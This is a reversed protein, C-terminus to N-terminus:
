GVVYLSFLPYNVLWKDFYTLGLHSDFTQSVVYKNWCLTILLCVFMRVLYLFLKDNDDSTKSKCATPFTHMYTLMYWRTRHIFVYNTSEIRVSVKKYVSFPSIHILRKDYFRSQKWRDIQLLNNKLQNESIKLDFISKM